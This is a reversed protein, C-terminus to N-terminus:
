LLTERVIGAIFGALGLVHVAMLERRREYLVHSTQLFVLSPLGMWNCYAHALSIALTSRTQMYAYCAYAGFLTTYTLQFVTQIAVLTPKTGDRLRQIAHHIHAVGFFLPATWCVRLPGLGAALLVPVMCTRFAVEELFPAIVINRLTMWGENDSSFSLARVTPELHYGYLSKLYDYPTASCQRRFYMHVFMFGHAIPGAYLAVVHTLVKASAVLSHAVESLLPSLSPQVERARQGHEPCLLYEKGVYAGLCVLGTAFSRWIIQRKHNRDLARVKAPVLVYLSGVFSFSTAACFGVAKALSLCTTNDVSMSAVEFIRTSEQSLNYRASETIINRNSAM